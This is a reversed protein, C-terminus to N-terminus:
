PLIELPVYVGALGNECDMSNPTFITLVLFTNGDGEAEVTSAFQINNGSVWTGLVQSGLVVMDGTEFPPSWKFARFETLVSGGLSTESTSKVLWGNEADTIPIKFGKPILKMAVLQRDGGEFAFEPWSARNIMTDIVLCVSHNNTLPVGSSFPQTARATESVGFDDPTFIMRVSNGFHGDEWSTDGTPVSPNTGSIRRYHFNGDLNFGQKVGEFPSGATGIGDSWGGIIEGGTSVAVINGDANAQAVFIGSEYMGSPHTGDSFSLMPSGRTGAALQIQGSPPTKDYFVGPAGANAAANVIGLDNFQVSTLPPQVGGVTVNHTHETFKTGGTSCIICLNTFAADTTFVVFKVAISWADFSTTTLWTKASHLIMYNTGNLSGNITLTDGVNADASITGTEYGSVNVPASSATMTIDAVLTLVLDGSTAPNFGAAVLDSRLFTITDANAYGSGPLVATVSGAGSNINGAGDTVLTFIANIGAGDSSSQPITITISAGAGTIVGTVRPGLTPTLGDELTGDYTAIMYQVNGTKSQEIITWSM